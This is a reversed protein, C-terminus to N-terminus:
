TEALTIMRDIERAGEQIATEISEPDPFFIARTNPFAPFTDTGLTAWMAPTSYFCVCRCGVSAALNLVTTTTSVTMDLAAMMAALEDLDDRLDFDKDGFDLIDIGFASNAARIEDDREGYQLNVFKVGQTTLIPGWQDLRSQNMLRLKDWLGIGSKFRSTWSIGIKPEPGLEVFRGRWHDVREPDAVLYAEVKELGPRLHKNLSGAAVQVDIPPLHQELTPYNQREVSIVKIRPFSRAFLPELRPDSLVICHDAQEALQGFCSAFLIEDGVGQEAYVLITKGSLSEGDWRPYTFNNHANPYQKMRWEREDWGDRLNGLALNILGMNVHAEAVDPNSSLTNRSIEEAEELRGQLWLAQGLQTLAEVSESNISIARKLSAVAEDLHGLELYVAGLNTHAIAHDPKCAIAKDFSSIADDYKGQAQYAKGLNTLAEVYDSSIFIARKYSAVAKDLHGLKRHVVGLSNHFEATGPKVAIARLILEVAQDNRDDQFAIVGLLHLADHQEPQIELIKQYIGEALSLHGDEQLKIAKQLSINITYAVEDDSIEGTKKRFKKRKRRLKRNM